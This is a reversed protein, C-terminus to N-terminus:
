CMVSNTSPPSYYFCSTIETQTNIQNHRVVFMAWFNYHVTHPSFYMHQEQLTGPLLLQSIIELVASTRQSWQGSDLCGFLLKPPLSWPIMQFQSLYLSEFSPFGMYSLQNNQRNIHSFSHIVERKQETMRKTLSSLPFRLRFAWNRDWDLSWIIASHFSPVLYCFMKQNRMLNDKYM